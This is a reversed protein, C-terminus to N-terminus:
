GVAARQELTPRVAHHRLGCGSVRSPYVVKASAVGLAIVCIREAITASWIEGLRTSFRGLPSHLRSIAVKAVSECVVVALVSSGCALVCNFTDACPRGLGAERALLTKLTRTAGELQASQKHPVHLLRDTWGSPPRGPDSLLHTVRTRQAVSPRCKGNKVARHETLAPVSEITTDRVGLGSTGSRVVEGHASAASVRLCDPKHAPTDPQFGDKVIFVIRQAMWTLWPLDFHKGPQRAALACENVFLFNFSLSAQRAVPGQSQPQTIASTLLRGDRLHRMSKDFAQTRRDVAFVRGGSLLQQAVWVEAAEGVFLHAQM